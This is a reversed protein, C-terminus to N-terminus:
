QIFKECLKQKELTLIDGLMFWSSTLSVDTTTEITIATDDKDDDEAIPITLLIINWDKKLDLDFIVQKNTNVTGTGEMKVDQDAYMYMFVKLKKENLASIADARILFNDPTISDNLSIRNSSDGKYFELMPLLATKANPNSIHTEESVFSVMVMNHIFDEFNYLHMPTNLQMEFRKNPEIKSTGIVEKSVLTMSDATKKITIAAQLTNNPLIAQQTVVPGGIKFVKSAPTPEPTTKDKKCSTAFVSFIGVLLLVNSIFALKKM